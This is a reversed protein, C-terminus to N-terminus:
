SREIADPIAWSSKLKTPKKVAKPKKAKTAQAAPHHAENASAPQADVGALSAAAAFAFAMLLRNMPTEMSELNSGGTTHRGDM